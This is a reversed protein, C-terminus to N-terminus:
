VATGQTLGLAALDDSTGAAPADGEDEAFEWLIGEVLVRLEHWPLARVDAMSLGLRRRFLYWVIPDFGATLAEYRDEVSKPRHAGPHAM